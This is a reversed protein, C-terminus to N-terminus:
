ARAAQLALRWLAPFARELAAAPLPPAGAREGLAEARRTIEQAVWGRRAGASYRGNMQWVRM